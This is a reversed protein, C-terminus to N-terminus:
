LVKNSSPIRLMVQTTNTHSSPSPPFTSLTGNVAHLKHHANIGTAAGAATNEDAYCISEPKKHSLMCITPPRTFDPPFGNDHAKPYLVMYCKRASVCTMATHIYM